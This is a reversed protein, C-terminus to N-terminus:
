DAVEGTINISFDLAPASHTLYGLSIVDVGEIAYDAINEPRVGGSVEIRVRGGALKVCERVQEPTMNDLLLIDAGAEIMPEVQAPETIEVEILDVMRNQAKV